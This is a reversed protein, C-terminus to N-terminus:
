KYYSTAKKVFTDSRVFVENEKDGPCLSIKKVKACDHEM